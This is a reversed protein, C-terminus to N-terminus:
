KKFPKSQKWLWDCYTRFGDAVKQSIIEVAIPETGQSLAIVTTDKYVFYYTPPSKFNIPMKRADVYKHSNREKLTENDVEPNYLQKGKIKKNARIIQFKEWNAHHYEPQTAPINVMYYEEGEKLKELINFTANLIGQFGSYLTASARKGKSQLSLINPFIEMINEKKNELQDKEKELFQLLSNPPSAQYKKIKDEIVFSVLGKDILKELVQYIISRHVKSLDSIPGVSTAGLQSLAHYIRAEGNTLGISELQKIM